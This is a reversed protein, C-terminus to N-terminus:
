RRAREPHMSLCIIAWISVSTRSPMVCPISFVLDGAKLEGKSVPTGTKSIERSVRPLILGVGERFVYGVFGSCDFGTQPRDGSRRYRIGILDHARAVIQQVGDRDGLVGSETEPAQTPSERCVRMSCGIRLRHLEGSPPNHFEHPASYRGLRESAIILTRPSLDIRIVGPRDDKAPFEAAGRTPM